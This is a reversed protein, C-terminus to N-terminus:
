VVNLQVQVMEAGVSIENVAAKIYQRVELDESEMLYRRFQHCFSKFDDKDRPIELVECGEIQKELLAKENTLAQLRALLIEPGGREISQVLNGIAREVGRLRVQLKSRHEDDNLEANLRAIDRRKFLDKALLSAVMQDLGETRIEKNSCRGEGKVRHKPCYYTTYTIGHSKRTTGIMYSGCCACRLIGLGSLMYHHRRKSEAKGSVRAALMEQVREYQEREIIPQFRNELIVQEEVPKHEHSNRRGDTKKQRTVNWFFTGIYKRQRLISLFSYKTFPKGAKTVIGESNLLDAMANYSYNNEFLNFIRRVTEAEEENIVLNKQEDLDYGLPPIGGCHSGIKAKQLMGAHTHVANKDSSYGDMIFYINEMMRGEPTNEMEQTVSVLEINHNNLINKYVGANTSNRSFRSYDFVM